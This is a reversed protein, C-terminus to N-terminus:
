KKRVDNYFSSSINNFNPRATPIGAMHTGKQTSIASALEIPMLCFDEELESATPGASVSSLIGNSEKIQLKLFKVYDIVEDLMTARDTKNSNPVLDHLNHMREAIRERRHREAISHPDTAMGRRARVRPMFTGDFGANANTAVLSAHAQSALLQNLQHNDSCLETTETKISSHVRITPNSSFPEPRARPPLPLNTLQGANTGANNVLFSSSLMAGEGNPILVPSELGSENYIKDSTNNNPSWISSLYPNRLGDM